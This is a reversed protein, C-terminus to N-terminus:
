LAVSGRICSVSAGGVWVQGSPESAIHVRGARGLAAGQAAVYSGPMHGEAILWQALSANLSGTVPDENVGLHPAFGRVELQADGADTRVAAVGVKNGTAALRGFDPALQAVTAADDLLLGVWATGNDLQQASVVQAPRLGLAATVSTLLPAPVASRTLTPAAFALREGDRRIRVLGVGCQQVVQGHAQPQGSAALWAHCTGLTPHGAFQLEGGPTFIRVRYDAGADTPSLVFTTESLNTWRAFGQMTADDLDDAQLVVAVPNGRYPTATFVDVQQFPRQTMTTSM